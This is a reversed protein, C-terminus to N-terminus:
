INIDYCSGADDFLVVNGSCHCVNNTSKLDTNCQQVHLRVCRCKDCYFVSHKDSQVSLGELQSTVDATQPHYTRCHSYLQTPGIFFQTFVQFDQRTSTLQPLLEEESM